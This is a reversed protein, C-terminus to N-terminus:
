NSSNGAVVGVGVWVESGGGGGGGHPPMIGEAELQQELSALLREEEM